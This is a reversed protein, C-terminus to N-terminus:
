FPIEEEPVEQAEAESNGTDRSGGLFKVEFASMEYSARPNGEKDTWIRPGGNDKDATLRGECLVLRGKTLHQNCTEALKGWTAVTFWVTEDVDNYKRSTAVSFNCVAQGSPTYRLEPGRGLHGVIITKQYMKLRMEREYISIYAIIQQTYNDSYAIVLYIAVITCTIDLANAGLVPAPAAKYNITM